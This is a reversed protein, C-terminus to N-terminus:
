HAAVIAVRLAAMTTLENQYYKIEALNFKYLRLFFFAFVEVFVVTSVRPVYYGLVGPVDRLNLPNGLVMYVLLSVAAVTTLVGIVLNLNGRRSLARIESKLRSETSTFTDLALKELSDKRAEASYRQALASLTEERVRASVAELQSAELVPKTVIPTIDVQPGADSTFQQAASPKLLAVREGGLYSLLLTGAGSAIAITVSAVAIWRYFGAFSPEPFLKSLYSSSLSALVAFM